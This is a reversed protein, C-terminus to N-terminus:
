YGGSSSTSQWVWLSVIVAVLLGPMSTSIAIYFRKEAVKPVLRTLLPITALAILTYWPVQAFIVAALGLLAAALAYPFTSAIRLKQSSGVASGTLIWALLVAGSAAALALALQGLLASAGSVACLGTGLLLSFGAGHLRSDDCSIQEFAWILWMILGLSGAIFLLMEQNDMRPLIKWFVVLVALGSFLYLYIRQQRGTAALQPILGALLFATLILLIIKRTGTLPTITLGNILWVSVAFAAFMAWLWAKTSTKKLALFAIFSVAFPLVATQIEPRSLLQDM